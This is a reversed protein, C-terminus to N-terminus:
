DVFSTKTIQAFNTKYQMHLAKTKSVSVKVRSRRSRAMLKKVALLVAIQLLIQVIGHLGNAHPFFHGNFCEVPATYVPHLGITNLVNGSGDGDCVVAIAVAVAVLVDFFCDTLYGFCCNQCM